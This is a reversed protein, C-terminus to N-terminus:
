MSVMRLNLLRNDTTKDPTIDSAFWLPGQHALPRPKPHAPQTRQTRPEQGQLEYLPVADVWWAFMSSFSIASTPPRRPEPCERPWRRTPAMAEARNKPADSNRDKEDTPTRDLSRSVNDLEHSLPWSRPSAWPNVASYRHHRVPHKHDNDPPGGSRPFPRQSGPRHHDIDPPAGSRRFQARSYPRDRDIRRFKRRVPPDRHDILSPRRTFPRVRSVFDAIRAANQRGSPRMFPLDPEIELM